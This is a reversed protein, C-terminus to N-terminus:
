RGCSPEPLFLLFIWGLISDINRDAPQYKTPFLWKMESSKVDAFDNFEVTKDGTKDKGM